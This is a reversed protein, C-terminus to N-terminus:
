APRRGADGGEEYARCVAAILALREHLASPTRAVVEDEFRGVYEAVDESQAGRDLLACLELALSDAYDEERWGGRLLAARVESLRTGIVVGEADLQLCLLGITAERGGDAALNLIGDAEARELGEALVRWLATGRWRAFPDTTM